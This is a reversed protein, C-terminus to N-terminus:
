ETMISTGALHAADDDSDDDDDDTFSYATGVTASRYSKMSDSLSAFMCKTGDGSADYTLASKARVGITGGASIADQNAGIFVFDYHVGSNSKRLEEIMDFIQERTFEKSANEDGDTIVVFVCKEPRDDEPMGDIRGVVTNMTKGMADLLATMGRPMLSLKPVEELKQMEYVLDYHDDFQALTVTAEGEVKRQKKMFTDFGSCMETSISSMSGSRDLIVAIHTYNKKSM